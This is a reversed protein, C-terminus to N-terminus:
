RSRSVRGRLAAFALSFSITGILGVAAFGKAIAALCPEFEEGIWGGMRWHQEEM